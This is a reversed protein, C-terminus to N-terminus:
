SYFNIIKEIIFEQQSNTLAPFIPLSICNKYYNEACEFDGEKWGLEKYYPMLHCPFYHIQAFIKNEKLFDYLGLRNEVEIVYLHYAQNLEVKPKNLIFKCEAFSENYKKVIQLRKELGINARKLQSIGLAAQFDTIRYNYGLEQMEMYWTPYENIGGALSISNIFDESQKTIGHTRLKLLKEYLVKNRTTIMGGEGTAIHKVPHFSFVTLDAYISGGAKVKQNSSDFFYAGPAHCADEIIWLNYEKALNHFSETNIPNGAFDVLV